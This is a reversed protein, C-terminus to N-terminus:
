WLAASRFGNAHSWDRYAAIVGLCHAILYEGTRSVPRAQSVQFSGAVRGSHKPQSRPGYDVGFTRSMNLRIVVQKMETLRELFIRARKRTYPTTDVRVYVDKLAEMCSEALIVELDADADHAKFRARNEYHWCTKAIADPIERFSQIPESGALAKLPGIFVAMLVIVSVIRRM